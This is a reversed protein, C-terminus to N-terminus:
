DSASLVVVNAWRKEWFRCPKQLGVVYNEVVRMRWYCHARSAEHHWASGWYSSSEGGENACRLEWWDWVCLGWYLLNKIQQDYSSTWSSNGTTFLQQDEPILMGNIHSFIEVCSSMVRYGVVKCSFSCSTIARLHRNDFVVSIASSAYVNAANRLFDHKISTMDGFRHFLGVLKTELYM